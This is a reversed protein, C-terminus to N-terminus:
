QKPSHEAIIKMARDHQKKTQARYRELEDAHARVQQAQVNWESTYAADAWGSSQQCTADLVAVERERPSASAEVSDIPAPQEAAPLFVTPSMENPSAPLDAIGAPAMCRRWKREATALRTRDTASPQGVSQLSQAFETPDTQTGLQKAAEAWCRDLAAAAADDMSNAAATFAEVAKRESAALVQEPSNGYGHKRALEPTFLKRGVANWSEGTPPSVTMAPLPWDYQTADMCEKALLQTAYTTPDSSPPLYQDLPMRWQGMSKAPLDITSAATENHSCAALVGITLVAVTGATWARILQLFGRLM